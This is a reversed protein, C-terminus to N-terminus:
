VCNNSSLRSQCQSHASSVLHVIYRLQLERKTSPLSGVYQSLENFDVSFQDGSVNWGLGLIKIPKDSLLDIVVPDSTKKRSLHHQIDGQLIAPSPTLGLVLRCFRYQVIEPETGQVRNFWLLRLMNQDEEEIMIQHFAKEIDATVGIQHTHFSFLVDFILPTLNLGKELCDNISHHHAEAKASGDFAIRM